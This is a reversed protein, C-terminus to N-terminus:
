KAVNSLVFAVNNIFILICIHLYFYFVARVNCCCLLLFITIAFIHSSYSGFAVVCVAM